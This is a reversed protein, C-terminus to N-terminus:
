QISAIVNKFELAFESLTQDVIAEFNPVAKQWFSQLMQATTNENGLLTVLETASSESLLPLVAIGLRRQAEATFQPVYERRTEESLGEFGGADFLKEVYSQLFDFQPAVSM